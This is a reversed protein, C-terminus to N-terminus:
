IFDYWDSFFDTSWKWRLHSKWRVIPIVLEFCCSKILGYSLGAAFSKMFSTFRRQLDRMIANLFHCVSQFNAFKQTFLREEPHGWRLKSWIFVAENFQVYQLSKVFTCHCTENWSIENRYFHHVLQFDCVRYLVVKRPQRIKSWNSTSVVDKFQVKTLLKGQQLSKM